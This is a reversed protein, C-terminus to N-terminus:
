AYSGLYTSRVAPHSRVVDYPGTLVLEGAQLYSVQDCLSAVFDLDHEVVLFTTGRTDRRQRIRLALELREAPTLGATPEDLVVLRPTTAAVMEWELRQRSGHSLAATPTPGLEELWQQLEEGHEAGAATISLNQRASARPFTRPVQFKRGVGERARRWPAGALRRGQLWISGTQSRVHGTVVNALTTKGAGNPGILAHIHATHVTLDVRKLVAHSGFSVSVGECRLFVPEANPDTSAEDGSEGCTEASPESSAGM